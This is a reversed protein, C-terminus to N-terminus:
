SRASNYPSERRPLPYLQTVTKAIRLECQDTRPSPYLRWTTPYETRLRTLEPHSYSKLSRPSLHRRFVTHSWLQPQPIGKSKPTTLIESHPDKSSEWIGAVPCTDHNQCSDFKSWYLQRRRKRVQRLEYLSISPAFNALHTKKDIKTSPLWSITRLIKRCWPPDKANLLFHWRTM